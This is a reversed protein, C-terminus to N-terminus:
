QRIVFGTTDHAARGKPSLAVVRGAPYLFTLDHQDGNVTPYGRWEDPRNEFVAAVNGGRELVSLAYRDRREARSWTLHYNAPCKGALWTDMRKEVKTYDYFQVENFQEFIEAPWELDSTGNLRVCPRYAAGDLECSACLAHIDAAVLHMFAAPNAHYQRTKRIRAAQTREFSGRGATYLCAARCGRSARPCTNIGSENCPALYLIANRWGHALGLIM